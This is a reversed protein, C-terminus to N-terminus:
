GYGCVGCCLCIIRLRALAAYSEVGCALKDQFYWNVAIITYGLAVLASLAVTGWVWWASDYGGGGAFWNLLNM